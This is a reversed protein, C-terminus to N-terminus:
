YSPRILFMPLLSSMALFRPVASCIMPMSRSAIIFSAAPRGSEGFKEGLKVQAVQVTAPAKPTCGAYPVGLFTRLKSM